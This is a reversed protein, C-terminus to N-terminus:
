SSSQSPHHRVSFLNRRGRFKESAVSYANLNLNAPGSRRLPRLRFLQQAPAAGLVTFHCPRQRASDDRGLCWSSEFGRQVAGPRRAPWISSDCVWRPSVLKTLTAHTVKSQRLGSRHLCNGACPPPPLLPIRRKLGATVPSLPLSVSHARPGNDSDPISGTWRAAQARNM